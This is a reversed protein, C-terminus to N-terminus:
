LNLSRTPSSGGEGTQVVPTVGNVEIARKPYPMKLKIVQKRMDENLPFLYRHKGPVIVFEVETRKVKGTKVMESLTRPHRKKGNIIPFKADDSKGTYIWGGAQYIGGHHGESADAFSVILKLKPSMRKLMKIAIAVIRSVPTEHKCLAIRVLECGEINKLGYPTLLHNTAGPGFIVVGVFKEDEWVGIKVLKSAPMARSYHWNKVAYNAADYSAWDLKLIVAFVVGRMKPM